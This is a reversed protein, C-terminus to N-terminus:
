NLTLALWKQRTSDSDYGTNLGTTHATPMRVHSPSTVVARSLATSMTYALNPIKTQAPNHSKKKKTTFPQM